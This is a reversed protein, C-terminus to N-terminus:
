AVKPKTNRVGKLMINFAGVIDRDHQFHCHKCKYVEDCKHLHGCQPCTQSTYEERVHLFRSGNQWCKDKLIDFFKCHGANLFSRVTKTTLKRNGKICLKGAELKPFMVLDYRKSIFSACQFKLEQKLNSIKKRKYKIEKKIKDKEKLNQEKSLISYLKDLKICHETIITAWRNGFMFSEQSNPAYSTLFKRVGPDIAVPNNCKSPPKKPKCIYPIVLFFEGYCTKQIKCDMAPKSKPMLKHLQKTGCYKMEKLLKQFVFLKDGKKMINNKELSFAWGRLQEKKKTRFPAQFKKINGNRKNTFCAKLNSSADCIAGQRM